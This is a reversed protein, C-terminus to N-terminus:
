AGLPPPRGVLVVTWALGQPAPEGSPLVAFGRGPALVVPGGCPAWRHSHGLFVVVTLPDGPPEPAQCVAADDGGCVFALALPPLALLALAALLLGLLCALPLRDSRADRWRRPVSV